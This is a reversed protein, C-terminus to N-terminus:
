RDINEKLASLVAFPNHKKAEPIVDKKPHSPYEFYAGQKVPHTPLALLLEQICSEYIDITGNELPEPLLYTEDANADNCLNDAYDVQMDAAIDMHFTDGSLGCVATITAHMNGGLRYIKAPLPQLHMHFVCATVQIDTPMRETNLQALDSNRCIWDYYQGTTPIDQVVIRHSLIPKAM